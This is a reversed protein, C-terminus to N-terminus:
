EGIHHLIFPEEIAPTAQCLHFFLLFPLHVLSGIGVLLSEATSVARTWQSPQPVPTFARDMNVSSFPLWKQRAQQSSFPLRLAEFRLSVITSSYFKLLVGLFELDVITHTQFKKNEGPGL